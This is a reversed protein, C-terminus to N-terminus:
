WSGLFYMPINSDLVAFYKIADHDNYNLNLGLSPDVHIVSDNIQIRCPAKVALSLNKYFRASETYEPPHGQVLNTNAPPTIIGASSYYKSSKVSM